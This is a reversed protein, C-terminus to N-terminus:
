RPAPELRVFLGCHDSWLVEVSGGQQECGAGPLVLSEVVHPTQKSVFETSKGRAVGMVEPSWFVADFRGLGPIDSGMNFDGALIPPYLRESQPYRAEMASVLADIAESGPLPSLENSNPVPGWGLHVNYFHIFSEPEAVIKRLAHSRLMQPEQWGCWAVRRTAVM